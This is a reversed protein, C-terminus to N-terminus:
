AARGRARKNAEELIKMFELKHLREEMVELLYKEIGQTRLGPSIARIKRRLKGAEILLEKRKKNGKPYSFAEKKISKMAAVLCDREEIQTLSEDEEWGLLNVGRRSARTSFKGARQLYQEKTPNTLSHAM